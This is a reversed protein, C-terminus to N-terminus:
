RTIPNPSRSDPLVPTRRSFNKDYEPPVGIPYPAYDLGFHEETFIKAEEETLFVAVIHWDSFEGCSM